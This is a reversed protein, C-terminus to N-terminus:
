EPSALLRELRGPEVPKVLHDVFGSAATRAREEDSSYGTLALVRTQALRPEARMAEMVQYGDMGPLGIDLLVVEPPQRLAAALGSPGDYAASVEHGWIAVLDALTDAADRNDDIILVRTMPTALLPAQGLAALSLSM